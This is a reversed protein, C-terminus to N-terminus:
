WMSNERLTIFSNLLHGVLCLSWPIRNMHARTRSHVITTISSLQSVPFSRSCPDISMSSWNRESSKDCLCSRRKSRIGRRKFCSPSRSEVFLSGWHVCLLLTVDLLGVLVFFRLSEETVLATKLRLVIITSQCIRLKTVDVVLLMINMQEANVLSCQFDERDFAKNRECAFLKLRFGHRTPQLCTVHFSQINNLQVHWRDIVLAFGEDM